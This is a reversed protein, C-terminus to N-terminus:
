CKEEEMLRSALRFHIVDYEEAGYERPDGFWTQLEQHDRFGDREAFGDDFAFDEYRMREVKVCLAEGIFHIPKKGRVRVKWYLRLWGNQHIPRVRPKRCTQTKRGELIQEWFPGRSTEGSFSIAPSM